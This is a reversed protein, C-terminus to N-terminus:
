CKEKLGRRGASGLIGLLFFMLISIYNFKGVDVFLCNFLFSVLIAGIYISFAHNLPDSESSRYIGRLFLAVKTYLLLYLGLGLVGGMVAIHVFENHPYGVETAWQGSVDGFGTIYGPMADRFSNGGFGVGLIPNDIMMNFGTAWLALRNYIPSIETIRQYIDASGILIPLMVAMGILGGVIGVMMLPRVRKDFCFILFLGAICGVWPARTKCLFLGILIFVMALVLFLRQSTKTVQRYLLLTMLLCASIVLGFESANSFTGTARDLNHIVDMYQPVFWTIGLFYQLVAIAALFIGVFCLFWLLKHIQEDNWRLRSALFYTLMPMMYGQVLFAFDKSIIISLPKGPANLVLSLMSFGLFALIVKEIEDFNLRHHKKKIVEWLLMGMLACFLLRDVTVFPLVNLINNPFVFLTPIGLLWVLALFMIGQQLCIIGFVAVLIAAGAIWNGTVLFWSFLICLVFWPAMVLLYRQQRYM